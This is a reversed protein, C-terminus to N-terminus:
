AALLAACAMGIALAACAWGVLRYRRQRISVASSPSVRPTLESPWHARTWGALPAAVQEHSLAGWAASFHAPGQAQPPPSTGLNSRVPLAAPLASHPLLRAMPIPVFAPRTPLEIIMDNDTLEDGGDEEFPARLALRMKPREDGTIETWPQDMDTAEAWSEHAQADYNRSPDMMANADESSSM